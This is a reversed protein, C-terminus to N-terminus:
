HAELGDWWTRLEAAFALDDPVGGLGYHDSLEQTIRKAIEEAPAGVSLLAVVPGILCDWEDAPRDRAEGGAAWDDLKRSLEALRHKLERRRGRTPAM